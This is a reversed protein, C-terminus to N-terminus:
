SMEAIPNAHITVSQIRIENLPRYTKEDVQAKEIYDLTDYGDIV